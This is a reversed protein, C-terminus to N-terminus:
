CCTEWFSLSCLVGGYENGSQNERRDVQAIRLLNNGDIVAMYKPKEGKLGNAEMIRKRIPQKM